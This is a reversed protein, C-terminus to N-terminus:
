DQVRPMQVGLKTGVGPRQVRLMQIRLMQVGLVQVRLIQVGLKTRVGLRRGEASTGELCKYGRFTYGRSM